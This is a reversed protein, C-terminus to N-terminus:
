VDLAVGREQGIVELLDSPRLSLVDACLDPNFEDLIDVTIVDWGDAAQFASSFGHEVDRRGGLGSFLDLCVRRETDDSSQGSPTM